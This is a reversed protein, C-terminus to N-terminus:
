GSSSLKLWDFCKHGGNIVYIQCVNSLLSLSWDLEVTLGLCWLLFHTYNATCKSDVTLPYFVTAKIEIMWLIIKFVFMFWILKMCIAAVPPNDITQCSTTIIKKLCGSWLFFRQNPQISRATPLSPVALNLASTYNTQLSVPQTKFSTKDESPQVGLTLLLTFKIVPM